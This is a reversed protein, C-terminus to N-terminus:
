PSWHNPLFAAPYDEYVWKRLTEIEKGIHPYATSFYEKLIGDLNKTRAVAQFLAYQTSKWLLTTRDQWNRVILQLISNQDEFPKHNHSFQIYEQGLSKQYLDYRTCKACEGCWSGYHCSALHPIVQPIKSFVMEFVRYDSFPALPSFIRVPQALYKSLFHNLVSVSGETGADHTLIQNGRYNIRDTWAEKEIGGCLNSIGFQNAIILAGSFMFLERGHPVPHTNLKAFVCSYSSAIEPFEPFQVDAFITKVNMLKSLHEVANREQTATFYNINFNIPTVDYHNKQLLHLAYTSDKGGSWTLCAKKNDSFVACNMERVYFDAEVETQEIAIPLNERFYRVDYLSKLVPRFDELMGQWLRFQLTIRRALCLQAIFSAQWLGIISLSTDDLTVKFPFEIRYSNHFREDIQYFIEIGCRLPKIDVTLHEARMNM